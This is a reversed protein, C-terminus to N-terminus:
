AISYDLSATCLTHTHNSWSEVVAHLCEVVSIVLMHYIILRWNHVGSLTSMQLYYVGLLKVVVLM